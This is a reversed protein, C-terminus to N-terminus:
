EQKEKTLTYLVHGFNQRSFFNAFFLTVLNPSNEGLPSQKSQTTKTFIVSTACMIPRNKEV